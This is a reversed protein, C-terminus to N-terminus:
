VAILISCQTGPYYDNSQRSNLSVDRFALDSVVEDGSHIYFLGKQERCWEVVRSYGLGAKAVKRTSRKEQITKALGEYDGGQGFNEFNQAIGRGNDFYNLELFMFGRSEVQKTRIGQSNRKSLTANAFEVYEPPSDAWYSGLAKEVGGISNNPIYRFFVEFVLTDGLYQETTASLRTNEPYAMWHDINDTIEFHIGALADLLHAKSFFDGQQQYIQKLKRSFATDGSNLRDVKSLIRKLNTRARDISARSNVKKILDADEDLKYSFAQAALFSNENSSVQELFSRELWFGHTKLQDLFKYYEDILVSNNPKIAELLLRYQVVTVNRGRTPWNKIKDYIQVVEDSSLPNERITECWVAYSRFFVDSRRASIWSFDFDAM